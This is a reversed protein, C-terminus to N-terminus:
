LPGHMKLVFDLRMMVGFKAHHGYKLVFRALSWELMPTGVLFLSWLPGPVVKGAFKFGWEFGLKKGGFCSTDSSEETSHRMNLISIFIFHFCVVSGIEQRKYDAAGPLASFKRFPPELAHRVKCRDHHIGSYSVPLWQNCRRCVPLFPSPQQWHQYQILITLLVRNANVGQRKTNPM